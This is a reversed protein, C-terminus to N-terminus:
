TRLYVRVRREGIRQQVPKYGLRQLSAGARTEAARNIQATTLGICNRLADVIVIPKPGNQNHIAAWPGIVDDWSDVAAFDVSVERALKEATGFAVGNAKFLQAGEAYLQDRNAAIWDPDCNGAEFPLWRRSGTPDSLFGAENTTGFFISRRPYNTVSTQWKEVWVNHTAAVFRKLHESEKKRMGALEGLELVMRGKMSRFLDAEDLSLDLEGFFEPAPAMAAVASSKRSGQMGVAVPVMDAKTGPVLVRGALATWVYMGVAQQYAADATGWGKALFQAVRPVGDWVLGNLWDQASDFRNKEAVANIADRLTERPISKFGKRELCTGVNFVDTDKLPRWKSEGPECIMTQCLFADYGVRHCFGDDLLAVELNSRSATWGKGDGTARLAMGDGARDFPNGFGKFGGLVPPPMVAPVPIATFAEETAQMGPHVTVLGLAQAVGKVAASRDNGFEFYQVLDFADGHNTEGTSSPVGLGKERLTSSKTFWHGDETVKTAYSGTTQLDPHHWHGPKHTDEIFGYKAMLDNTDHLDKFLEIPTRTEKGEAMLRAREAERQAFKIEAQAKREQQRQIEAAEMEAVQALGARANATLVSPDFLAQGFQADEYHLPEGTIPDRQQYTVMRGTAKDKKTAARPVNPLYSIQKPSHMSKDIKVGRAKMFEAFAKQLRVWQALEIPAAAAIVLRWRKNEPRSSATSYVTGIADGYFDKAHQTVQEITLDSEDIDNIFLVMHAPLFQGRAKNDPMQGYGMIANSFDKDVAATLPRVMNSWSHAFMGRVDLLDPAFFDAKKGVQMPVKLHTASRLIDLRTPKVVPAIHALIADTKQGLGGISEAETPPIKEGIKPLPPPTFRANM